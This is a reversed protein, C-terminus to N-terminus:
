DLIRFGGGRDLCWDEGWRTQGLERQILRRFGKKRGRSTLPGDKGKGGNKKQSAQPISGTHHPGGEELERESKLERTKRRKKRGEIDHRGQTYVLEGGRKSEPTPRSLSRM